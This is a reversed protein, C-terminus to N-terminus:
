IKVAQELVIKLSKILEEESVKGAKPKVFVMYDGSPLFLINKKIEERLIRKVRNRQTAKKFVKTGVVVTLRAKTNPKSFFKLNINPNFFVRGSKITAQIDKTKALRNEKKLM